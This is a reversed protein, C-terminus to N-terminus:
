PAGSKNESDAAIKAAPPVYLTSVALRVIVSKGDEMSNGMDLRDVHLFRESRELADLFQGVQHYSASFQLSISLSTFKQFVQPADQNIASLQVGVGKSLAVVERVLWSTDPEPALRKRYQEVQQLLGAVNVQAQQNTQEDAIQAQIVRVQEQKPAYIGHYGFLGALAVGILGLLLTQNM